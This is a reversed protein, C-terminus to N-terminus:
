KREYILLYSHAIRLGGAVTRSQRAGDSEDLIVIEKLRLDPVMQMDHWTLLGAPFLGGRLRVDATRIALLGGPQMRGAMEAAAHLQMGRRESSNVSLGHSAALDMYVPHEAVKPLVGEKALVAARGSASLRCLNFLTSDVSGGRWVSGTEVVEPGKGSKRMRLGFRFPTPETEANLMDAQREGRSFLPLYEHALLLFRGEISRNYWLGSTKTNFQRKVILEEMSFGGRIFRELLMFGLPVVRKERRKDGVLVACRGGDKLVRASQQIAAQMAALYDPVDLASMDGDAGSSYRIIGAYPPHACILDISADGVTRLERADDASLTTNTRELKKGTSSCHREVSSLADRTLEISLPNIDTGVFNRGLLMAEVATTGGGVFCDLVTDGKKSYRLMVNRPIYPSWNGRYSGSHTAWSGRERFSWLTTTEREFHRPAISTIRRARKGGFSVMGRKRMLIESLTNFSVNLVRGIVPDSMGADKAETIAREWLAKGHMEKIHRGLGSDFRTGCHPCNLRGGAVTNQVAM